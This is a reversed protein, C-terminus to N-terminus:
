EKTYGTKLLKQVLKGGIIDGISCEVVKQKGGSDTETVKLLHNSINKDIDEKKM